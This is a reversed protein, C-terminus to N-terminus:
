KADWEAFDPWVGFFFSEWAFKIINKLNNMWKGVQSHKNLLFIKKLDKEVCLHSCFGSLRRGVFKWSTWSLFFSCTSCCCCYVFYLFLFGEKVADFFSKLTLWTSLLLRPFSLIWLCFALFNSLACLIWIFFSSSFNYIILIM